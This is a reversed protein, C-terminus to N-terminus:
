AERRRARPEQVQDRAGRVDSEQLRVAFRVGSWRHRGRFSLLTGRGRRQVGVGDFRFAGPIVIAFSNKRVEDFLKRSFWSGKNYLSLFDRKALSLPAKCNIQM